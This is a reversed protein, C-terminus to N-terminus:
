LRLKAAVVLAPRVEGENQAVVLERAADDRHFRQAGLRTLALAREPLQRHRQVRREGRCADGYRHLQLLPYVSSALAHNGVCISTPDPGAANKM